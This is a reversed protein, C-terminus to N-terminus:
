AGKLDAETSDATSGAQGLNVATVRGRSRAALERAYVAPIGDCECATGSMVSDGIGVVRITPIVPSSASAPASRTPSSSSRPAPDVTHAQAGLVGLVVALTAIVSLAITHAVRRAPM